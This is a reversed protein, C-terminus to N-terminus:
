CFARRRDSRSGWLPMSVFGPRLSRESAAIPSRRACGKYDFKRVRAECHQQDCAATAARLRGCAPCRRQLREPAFAGVVSHRATGRLALGALMSLEFFSMARARRAPQQVTAEALVKLLPPTVGAVGAGQLLQSVFFLPRSVALAFLQVGAASTLAGALM